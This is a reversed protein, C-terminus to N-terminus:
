RVELNQSCPAVIVVTPTTLHCPDPRVLLPTVFSALAPKRRPARRVRRFERQHSPTPVKKGRPSPTMRPPVLSTAASQSIMTTAVRPFERPRSRSSAGRRTALFPQGNRHHVGENAFPFLEDREIRRASRHGRWNAKAKGLLLTTPREGNARGTFHFVKVTPEVGVHHNEGVARGRSSKTVSITFSIGPSRPTSAPEIDSALAISANLGHANEILM